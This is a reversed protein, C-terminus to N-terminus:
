HVYIVYGTFRYIVQIGLFELFFFRRSAEFTNLLAPTNAKQLEEDYTASM